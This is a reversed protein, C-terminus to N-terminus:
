RSSELVVAVLAEGCRGWGRRSGACSGVAEACVGVGGRHGDVGEVDEVAVTCREEAREGHEWSQGCGPSHM